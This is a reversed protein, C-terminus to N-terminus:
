NKKRRLKFLGMKEMGTVKETNMEWILNKFDSKQNEKVLIPKHFTVSYM